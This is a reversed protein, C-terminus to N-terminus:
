ARHQALVEALVVEDRGVVAAVAMEDGGRVVPAAQDVLQDAVLIADAGADAAALVEPRLVEDGIALLAAQQGDRCPHGKVSLHLAVAGDHDGEIPSSMSSGYPPANLIALPRVDAKGARARVVGILSAAIVPTPTPKAIMPRRAKTSIMNPSKTV